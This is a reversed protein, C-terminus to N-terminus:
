ARQIADLVEQGSAGLKTAIEQGLGMLFQNRSGPGSTRIAGPHPIKVHLTRGNHVWFLQPKRRTGFVLLESALSLSQWRKDAGAIKTWLGQAEESMGYFIVLKPEYANLLSRFLLCRSEFIKAKYTEKTALWDIGTSGLIWGTLKPCSIQSVDLVCFDGARKGLAQVQFRLVEKEGINIGGIALLIRILAAWTPQENKGWNYKPPLNLALHYDQLDETEKHGRDSWVRIRNHIEDVTEGGGAEPGLLWIPAGLNGYGLFQEAYDRFLQEDEKPPTM